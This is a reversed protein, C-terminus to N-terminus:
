RNFMISPRFHARVCVSLSIWKHVVFVCTRRRIVSTYPTMILSSYRVYISDHEVVFLPRIDVRYCGSISVHFLYCLRLNMTLAYAISANVDFWIVPPSFVHLCCISVAFKTDVFVLCVIEIVDACSCSCFNWTNRGMCKRKHPGHNEGSM